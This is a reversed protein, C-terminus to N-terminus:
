EMGGMAMVPAIHRRELGEADCWKLWGKYSAVSGRAHADYIGREGLWRMKRKMAMATSKRLLTRDGFSRYGLFDIGRVRTPFVQWNDKMNLRLENSLYDDIDKRLQHLWEKSDGLIVLDDCYRFYHRAKKEEKLWHDMQSLYINGLFQSLYNGIPVGQDDPVSDVIEDLLELVEPDKLKRRLARKMIDHDISPYFKRIDLKLCYRTAEEDRLSAHLDLLGHHIGRGKLSSYTQHILTSEWIPELVRVVAWQVIRDPYYPLVYIEREKGRENKKFVRYQSTRYNHTRLMTSISMIYPRPNADIIQVERYHAKGRRASIHAQMINEPDCIRGYLNGIRKM